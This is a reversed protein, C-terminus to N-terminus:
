SCRCTLRCGKACAVPTRHTCRRATVRSSNGRLPIHGGPIQVGGWRETSRFRERSDFGCEVAKPLSVPIRGRSLYVARGTTTRRVRSNLQPRYRPSPSVESWDHHRGRACLSAGLSRRSCRGTLIRTATRFLGARSGAREARADRRHRVVQHPDRDRDVPADSWRRRSRVDYSRPSGRGAARRELAM